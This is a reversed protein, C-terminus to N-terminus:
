AHLPLESPKTVAVTFRGIAGVTSRHRIALSVLPELSPQRTSLTTTVSHWKLPVGVAVGVEDGDGVAVAVAM